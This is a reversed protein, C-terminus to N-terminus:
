LYQAAEHYGSSRIADKWMNLSISISMTDLSGFRRLVYEVTSAFYQMPVEAGQPLRAEERVEKFARWLEGALMALRGGNDYALPFYYRTFSWGSGTPHETWESDDYADLCIRFDSESQLGVFGHRHVMFRGIIQMQKATVFVEHQHLLEEQGFLLWTTAVNRVDLANDLDVLWHFHMEHLKQAEDLLIVVRKKNNGRAREALFEILRDRKAKPKGTTIAHGVGSLLDELFSNENPIRYNRCVVSFMPVDCDQALSKVLFKSAWTKGFRQKGVIMAGPVRNVIWEKVTDYLLCVPPTGIIYDGTEIPHTGPAVSPRVLKLIASM